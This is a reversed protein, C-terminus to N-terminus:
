IWRHIYICQIQLTNNKKKWKQESKVKTFWYNGICCNGERGWKNKEGLYSSRILDRSKKVNKWILRCRKSIDPHLKWWFEGLKKNTQTEYSFIGKWKMRKRFHSRQLYREGTWESWVLYNVLFFFVNRAPTYFEKGFPVLVM